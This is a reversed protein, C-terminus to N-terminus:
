ELKGTYQNPAHLPRQSPKKFSPISHLVEPALRRSDPPLVPHLRGISRPLNGKWMRPLFLCFSTGALSTPSIGLAVDRRLFTRTSGPRKRFSPIGQDPRTKPPFLPRCYISATKSASRRRPRRGSGARMRLEELPHTSVGQRACPVRPCVRSRRTPLQSRPLDPQKIGPRAIAQEPRGPSSGTAFLFPDGGGSAFSVRKSTVSALLPGFWARM